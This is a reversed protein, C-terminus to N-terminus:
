ALLKAKLGAFEADDIIGRDRLAALRELEDAVSPSTGAAQQIYQKVSEEQAQAAKIEHGAMKDGRVILYALVGLFPFLIAFLVWMAKKGGSLDPSRFIDAYVRIVLLVWMVFLFFWLMSWFAQLVGWSAIM